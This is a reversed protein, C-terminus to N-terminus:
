ISLVIGEKRQSKCGLAVASLLLAQAPSSMPVGHLVAGATGEMGQLWRLLRLTLPPTAAGVM